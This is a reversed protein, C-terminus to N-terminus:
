EEFLSPDDDDNIICPTQDQLFGESRMKLTQTKVVVQPPLLVLLIAPLLLNSGILSLLQDMHEVEPQLALQAEEQQM